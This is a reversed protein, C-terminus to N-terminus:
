HTNKKQLRQLESEWRTLSSTKLATLITISEQLSQLAKTTNGQASELLALEGLAEGELERIGLIRADTLSRQLYSRSDKLNGSDRYLAGITKALLAASTRDGQAEKTQLQHSYENILSAYKEKTNGLGAVRASYEQPKGALSKGNSKQETVSSGSSLAKADLRQAANFASLRTSDLTQSETRYALSDMPTLISSGQPTNTQPAQATIANKSETAAQQEANPKTAVYYSTVAAGIVSAAGAAGVWTGVTLGLWTHGLWTGGIWSSAGAAGSKGTAAAVAIGIGTAASAGVLVSAINDEVSRLFPMTAASVGDGTTTLLGDIARLERLEQVLEPYSRLQAEVTIKDTNSLTGDLYQALLEDTLM